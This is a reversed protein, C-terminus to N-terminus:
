TAKVAGTAQRAIKGTQLTLKKGEWMIEKEVINFMTKKKGFM